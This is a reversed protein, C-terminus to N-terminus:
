KADETTALMADRCANWGHRYDTVSTSDGNNTYPDKWVPVAAEAAALKAELELITDEAAALKAVLELIYDAAKTPEKHTLWFNSFRKDDSM